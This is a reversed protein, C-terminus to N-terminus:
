ADAPYKLGMVSRISDMTRMVSLSLEHTVLPHQKLGQRLCEGVAIAEYSYGSVPKEFAIEEPSKGDLTLVLRTPSWYPSCIKLMGKTGYVFAEMKTTTKVASHYVGLTGGPYRLVAGMQEDVGTTGFDCLAAIKEPEAGTLLRGLAIAYIGVDLLAGGGRKPDFLRTSPDPTAAFGFDAELMNISGLTGDAVLERARIMAPFFQTWMAEMLLVNNKAACATMTTAQRLNMAFPKESMVAKGANMCQIAHEAHFSHPTGIYCIDVEKDTALEAASAYVRPINWRKAYDRAQDLPSSGVAVIEADGLQKLGNAFNNCIYGAGVIGWRIKGSM